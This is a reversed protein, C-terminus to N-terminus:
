PSVKDYAKKYNYCPVAFNSHHHKVEEMICRGIILQDVTGLIGELAGIQGEDWIENVATHERMYKAVLGTLIKCSTNLCTIPHYNNENSLNKTKPLLVTRRSLWWEHIMATDM